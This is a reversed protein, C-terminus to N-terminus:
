EDSLSGDQSDLTILEGCDPCEGLPMPDGPLIREELNPIPYILDGSDRLHDCIACYVLPM